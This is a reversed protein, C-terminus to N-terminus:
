EAHTAEPTNAFARRAFPALLVYSVVGGLVANVPVIGPLYHGAAVGLAVSLIAVWNVPAFTANHFDAYRRRNILYDAIIVGGVPPIAASLFTLWGVFNNYLWLACLTGIIGNVVSLMRSSLGTVNAFGLGSAYLANDNTTWINLGLVVIAPLLLGQAIMVDSIDAQGVAAAGAAGFIFMLSNGLFFAVMAVLVAGKASRGFRVFDATLTGASIFSGVVLALANSFNLPTQPVIAKLHALGGVGDVALWVSYSGLIVIAPVAVISLITLASIGFFITVTMLLGSVAILINVDIGTAKSVPIAFMAVGVGFWGVQTGGLLISPLWSGKVGFSYRALLHTSLGTKAGIYGLFATYIGLLLNGFLVALFFDNYSLGTGLTGGTWMSASFFTLGLMVFTLPIVGRRATLPVPGQSYNNDQSM